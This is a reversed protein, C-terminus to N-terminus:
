RKALTQIELNTGVKGMWGTVQDLNHRVIIDDKAAPNTVPLGLLYM